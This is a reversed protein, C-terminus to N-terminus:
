RIAHRARARTIPDRRYASERQKKTMMPIGCCPCSKFKNPLAAYCPLMMGCAIAGKFDPAKVTDPIAHNCFTM